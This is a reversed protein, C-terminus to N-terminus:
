RAGGPARAALAEYVRVYGEAMRRAGFRAEARARVRGRDLAVAGRVAAPLGRQAPRSCGTVGEDVIEPVAGINV